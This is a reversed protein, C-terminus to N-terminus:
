RMRGNNQGDGHGVKPSLNEGSRGEQGWIGSGKEQHRSGARDAPAEDRLVRSNRGQLEWGPGAISPYHSPHPVEELFKVWPM